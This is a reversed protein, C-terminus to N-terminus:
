GMRGISDILRCLQSSFYLVLDAHLNGMYGISDILRCLQTSFYQVLDAHVDVWEVLQM